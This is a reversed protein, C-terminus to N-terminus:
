AGETARRKREEALVLELPSPQTPAPTNKPSPPENDFWGQLKAYINMVKVFTKDDLEPRRLQASLSRLVEQKTAVKNSM